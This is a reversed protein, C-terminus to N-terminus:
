EDKCAGRELEAESAIVGFAAWAPDAAAKRLLPCARQANGEALYYNAVAYTLTPAATGKLQAPDLLSKETRQGKDFLLCQYYVASEKLELGEPVTALLKEAEAEMKARRLARYRWETMGIRAEEDKTSSGESCRKAGGPLAPGPDTQGMCRAYEAVSKAYQGRIFYVLALHYAVDYSNPALKRAHELDDTAKSFQRTSIYRHGRYRLFRFDQPALKAGRTYLDISENFRWVKDRALAAALILEPDDPKAALAEDAKRVVGDKDELPAHTVSQMLLLAVLIGM